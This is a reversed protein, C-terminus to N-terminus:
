KDVYKWTKPHDSIQVMKLNSYDTIRTKFNPESNNNKIPKAKVIKDSRGSQKKAM